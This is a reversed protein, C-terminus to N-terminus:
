FVELFDGMIVSVRNAANNIAQCFEYDERISNEISNLFFNGKIQEIHSVESYFKEIIIPYESKLYAWVKDRYIDLDSRM